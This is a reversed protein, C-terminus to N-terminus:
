GLQPEIATDWVYQIMENSCKAQDFVKKRLAPIENMKKKGIIKRAKNAEVETFSCINKDMLIVMLEEQSSIVGSVPLYHKELLEYENIPINYEKLEDYWLQIDNKFRIFKDMPSEKGDQAMLRTLGNLTSMEQLSIPKGHGM